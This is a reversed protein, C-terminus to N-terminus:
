YAWTRVLGDADFRRVQHEDLVFPTRDPGYCLNKAERFSAHAAVGDYPAEEHGPRYDNGAFEKGFSQGTLVIPKGRTEDLRMVQRRARDALLRSAVVM